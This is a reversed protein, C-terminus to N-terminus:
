NACNFKGSRDALVDVFKLVELCQNLEKALTHACKVCQDVIFDGTLRSVLDLRPMLEARLVEVDVVLFQNETVLRPECCLLKETWHSLRTLTQQFAM